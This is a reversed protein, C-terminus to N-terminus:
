TSSRYLSHSIAHVNLIQLHCEHEKVPVVAWNTWPSWSPGDPRIGHALKQGMDVGKRDM